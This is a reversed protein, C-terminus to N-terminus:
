FKDRHLFLSPDFVCAFYEFKKCLLLFRVFILLILRGDINASNLEYIAKPVLFFGKIQGKLRRNM